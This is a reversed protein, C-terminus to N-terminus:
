DESQVVAIHSRKEVETRDWDVSTQPPLAAAVIGVWGVAAVAPALTVAAIPM